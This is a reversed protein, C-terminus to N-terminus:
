SVTPLKPSAVDYVEGKRTLLVQLVSSKRDIQQASGWRVVEGDVLTFEIDAATDARAVVIRDHLEHPIESLVRAVSRAAPEDPGTRPLELEPLGEPPQAIEQYGVGERDMLYLGTGTDYFGVPKRETVAIAITSPWSRSVDVTAVAPLTGVREAIVETDVRLMAQQDPVDAVSRIQEVAVTHAGRVEVSRVGLVSTFFLLYVLGAVTLVGLAAVWRRRLVARRPTRVRLRERNRSGKPRGGGQPARRRHGTRSRRGTTM